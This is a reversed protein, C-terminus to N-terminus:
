VVSMELRVNCMVYYFYYLHLLYFWTYRSSNVSKDRNERFSEAIDSLLYSRVAITQPIVTQDCPSLAACVFSWVLLWERWDLIIYLYRGVLLWLYFIYFLFIGRTNQLNKCWTFSNWTDNRTAMKAVGVIRADALIRDRLRWSSVVGGDMSENEGSTPVVIM